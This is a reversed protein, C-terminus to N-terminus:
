VRARRAGDGAGCGQRVASFGHGGARQPQAGTHLKYGSRGSGSSWRWKWSIICTKPPRRTSGRRSPRRASARDCRAGGADAADGGRTLIGAQEFRARGPAIWRWSTRCCAGILRFRASFSTSCSTRAAPRVARGVAQEAGAPNSGAPERSASDSARCAHGAARFSQHLRRRGQPQLAGHTFSALDTRYLSYPSQRRTM